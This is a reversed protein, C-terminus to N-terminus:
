LLAVLLCAIGAVSCYVAFPYRRHRQLYRPLFHICGFSVAAATLFAIVFEGFAPHFLSTTGAEKWQALEDPSLRIAQWSLAPALLLMREIRGTVTMYAFDQPTPNFDVAHFAVDLTTEFREGFYRAKTSQGSSIFGHLLLITRDTM